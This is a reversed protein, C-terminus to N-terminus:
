ESPDEIRVNREAACAQDDHDTYNKLRDFLNLRHHHDLIVLSEQILLLLSVRRSGAYSRNQVGEAAFAEPQTLCIDPLVLSRLRCLM